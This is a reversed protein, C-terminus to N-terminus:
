KKKWHPEISTIREEQLSKKRDKHLTMNSHIKIGILKGTLKEEENKILSKKEIKKVLVILPLKSCKENTWNNALNRNPFTPPSTLCELVQQTWKRTM